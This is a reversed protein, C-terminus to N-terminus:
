RWYTSAWVAWLRRWVRGHGRPRKHSRGRRRAQALGLRAIAPLLSLYLPLTWNLRIGCSLSKYSMVALLPLSFCAALLWRPALLRRRNGLREPM